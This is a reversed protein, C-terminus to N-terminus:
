LKKMAQKCNTSSKNMVTRQDRLMISNDLGQTHSTWSKKIVQELKIIDQEPSVLRLKNLVQEDSTESKKM